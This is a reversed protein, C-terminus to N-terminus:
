FTFITTISIVPPTADAFISVSYRVLAGGSIMDFNAYLPALTVSYKDRILNSSPQFITLRIEEPSGFVKVARSCCPGRSYDYGAAYCITPRSNRHMPINRMM